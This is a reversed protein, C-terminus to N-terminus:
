QTPGEKRHEPKLGGGLEPEVHHPPVYVGFSNSLRAAEERRELREYYSDAWDQRDRMTFEPQHNMAQFFPPM